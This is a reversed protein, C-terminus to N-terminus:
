EDDQNQTITYQEIFKVAGRYVKSIMPEKKDEPNNGSFFIRDGIHPDVWVFRNGITFDNTNGWDDTLDNIKEVVPMLWDWSTHYQLESEDKLYWHDPQALFFQQTNTEENTRSKWGMFEAILRNADVSHMRGNEKAWLKRNIAQQAAIIEKNNMM